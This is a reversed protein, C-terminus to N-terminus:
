RPRAVSRQASGTNFILTGAVLMTVTGTAIRCSETPPTRWCGFRVRAKTGSTIATAFTAQAAPSHGAAQNVLFLGKM